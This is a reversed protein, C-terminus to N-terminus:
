EVEVAEVVEEAQMYWDPATSTTNMANVSRIRAKAEALTDYDENWYEQGWGRESEVLQIRYKTAM